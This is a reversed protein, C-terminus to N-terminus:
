LETHVDIRVVACGVYKSGQNEGGAGRIYLESDDYDFQEVFEGNAAGLGGFTPDARLADAFSASSNAAFTKSDALLDFTASIMIEYPYRIGSMHFDGDGIVPEANVMNREYGSILIHPMVHDPDLREAVIVVANELETWQAKWTTALAFLYDDILAWLSKNGAVISTAM